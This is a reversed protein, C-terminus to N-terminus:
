SQAGGGDCWKEMIAIGAGVDIGYEPHVFAFM